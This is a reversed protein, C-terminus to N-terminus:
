SIVPLNTLYKSQLFPIIQEAMNVLVHGRNPLIRTILQPQLQNLRASLTEINRIPDQTGGLLLIPMKLRKLEEDTFMAMSGIRPKFHSTITDMFIIAERDIQDKGFIFRNLARAGRRGHISFFAARLIFSTKDPVIGAPTLLVLAEIRETNRIAFKLTAWGGQSIGILSVKAIKLTNLVDEMWDAYAPSNWSPRNSASRGPEGPIDVAYTRFYQSYGKVEGVWSVANSCAGHLLILAPASKEGSAIIFTNGHRTPINLTEHPVPWRGLVSDYLALVEKEGAPSRYLSKTTM